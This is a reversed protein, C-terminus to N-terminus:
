DMLLTCHSCSTKINSWTSTFFWVSINQFFSKFSFTVQSILMWFDSTIIPIGLHESNSQKMNVAKELKVNFTITWKKKEFNLERNWNLFCWELSTLKFNWPNDFCVLKRTFVLIELLKFSCQFIPRAGKTSGAIM